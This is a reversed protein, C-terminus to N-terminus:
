CVKLLNTIVCRSSSIFLIKIALFAKFSKHYPNPENIIVCKKSLTEPYHKFLESVCNDYFCRVTFFKNVLYIIFILGINDHQICPQINHVAVGEQLPDLYVIGLNGYYGNM